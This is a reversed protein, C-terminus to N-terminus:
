QCARMNSPLPSAASSARATGISCSASSSKRPMTMGSCAAIVSASRLSRAQRARAQHVARGTTVGFVKEGAYRAGTAAVQTAGRGFRDGITTSVDFIAPRTVPFTLGQSPRIVPGRPDDAM